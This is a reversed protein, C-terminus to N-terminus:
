GKQTVNRTRRRHGTYEDISVEVAYLAEDKTIYEAM